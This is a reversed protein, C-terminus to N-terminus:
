AQLNFSFASAHYVHENCGLCRKKIPFCTILNPACRLPNFIGGFCIAFLLFKEFLINEYEFKKVLFFTEQTIKKLALIFTNNPASTKCITVAALRSTRRTRLHLNDANGCFIGDLKGM